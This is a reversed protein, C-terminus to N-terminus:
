PNKHSYGEHKEVIHLMKIVKGILGKGKEKKPVTSFTMAMLGCNTSSAVAAQAIM